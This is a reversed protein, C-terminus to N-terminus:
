EHSHGGTCLFWNKLIDRQIKYAKGCHRCSIETMEQNLLKEKETEPLSLLTDKIKEESCTCKFSLSTKSLEKFKEAKLLKSLSETDSDEFLSYEKEEFLLHFLNQDGEPLLQAIYAGARIIQGNKDMKVDAKIISRTQDSEKLYQMFCDSIDGKSLLITSSYPRKLLSYRTVTIQSGPASVVEKENNWTHEVDPNMVHEPYGRVYGGKYVDAHITGLDSTTRWLLSIGEENKFDAALTVTGSLIKGMIYATLTPLSHNKQIEIAAASVDAVTMRIGKIHLYHAAVNIDIM